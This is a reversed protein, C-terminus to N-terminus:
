TGYAPIAELVEFVGGHVARLIQAASVPWAQVTSWVPSGFPDQVAGVDGIPVQQRRAQGLQ